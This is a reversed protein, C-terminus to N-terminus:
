NNSMWYPPSTTIRPIESQVTGFRGDDITWSEFAEQLEERNRGVFNWWMMPPNEMPKGGLLMARSPSAVTFEVEERGKGFFAFMGPALTEGGTEVSGELVILGYEFKPSLPLISRGRLALELGIVEADSRAPSTSSSFEGILVTACGQDLDVQPLDEHHDFAPGGHRTLEPQAIWLQIGHLSGTSRSASEEAHAVGHGATMLNLQGPSIPQESGLSDRHIVEGSLLWTVTHLGTHPHPGVDFTRTDYGNTPGFHDAFCWAGVARRQRRPLARHVRINGVVQERSRTVEVRPWESNEEDSSENQETM